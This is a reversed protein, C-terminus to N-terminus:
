LCLFQLFVHIMSVDLYGVVVGGALCFCSVHRMFVQVCSAYLNQGCGDDFDDGLLVMWYYHLM